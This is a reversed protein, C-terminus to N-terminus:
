GEIVLLGLGLLAFDTLAATTGTLLFYYTADKEVVEAAPLIVKTNAEDLKTDATYTTAGLAGLSADTSEAAVAKMKRLDVNLTANAGASEVQGIAHFGVIRDGEKLGTIPVVLTSGTQSAPLTALLGTNVAGGGLAWGATAGIKGGLQVVRRKYGALEEEAATVATGSTFASCRWRYLAARTVPIQGSAANTFSGFLEWSLGGDFSRELLLTASFTGSLRYNVLSGAAAAIAAGLAVGTFSVSATAM